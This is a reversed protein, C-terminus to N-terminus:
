MIRLYFHGTKSCPPPFNWEGADFVPQPRDPTRGRCHREHLQERMTKALPRVDHLHANDPWDCRTGPTILGFALSWIVYSGKSLKGPRADYGLLKSAKTM